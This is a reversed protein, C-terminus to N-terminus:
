CYTTYFLILCFAVATAWLTHGVTGKVLPHFHAEARRHGRACVYRRVAAGTKKSVTDIRKVPSGCCAGADDTLSCTLRQGCLYSVLNFIWNWSVALVALGIFFIMVHEATAGLRALSDGIQSPDLPGATGGFFGLYYVLFCAGMVTMELGFRHLRRRPHRQFNESM